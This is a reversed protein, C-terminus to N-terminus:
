DKICEAFLNIGEDGFLVRTCPKGFKSARYLEDMKSEDRHILRWDLVYDMLGRSPNRPHFNGLIVRGGPRLHEFIWDMLKIVFADNFYDILGISYVLDQQPLDLAQRGTALYILNPHLPSIPVRDKKIRDGLVALAEKDIDIGTAAFGDVGSESFVDFLEQAPGCALSTVRVLGEQTERQQKIQDKLLGRRNRVAKVAPASLFCADILPGIRGVGSPHNDYMLQITLYDGAYGRPKSYFRESVSTLEICPLIVRQVARGMAARGSEPIDTSFIADTFNKSLLDFDALVREKMDKPVESKAELARKDAAIVLDMFQALQERLSGLVGSKPSETGSSRQLGAILPGVAKLRQSELRAIAKYLHLAFTSDSGIRRDLMATPLALVSGNEAARITAAIPQKDFWSIEGVIQGPGIQAVRQENGTADCVHVDFLGDTIFYINDSRTGERLLTTAAIVTVPQANSMIWDIDSASFSELFDLAQFILQCEGM